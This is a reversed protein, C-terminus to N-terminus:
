LIGLSNRYNHRSGMEGTGSAKNNGMDNRPTQPVRYWVYGIFRRLYYHYIQFVSTTSGRAPLSGPTAVPAHSLPKLTKLLYPSRTSLGRLKILILIDQPYINPFWLVHIRFEISTCIPAGSEQFSGSLKFDPTDLTKETRPWPHPSHNRRSSTDKVRDECQFGGVHRKWKITAKRKWTIRRQQM